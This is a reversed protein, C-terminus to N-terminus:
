LLIYVRSGMTLSTKKKWMEEIKSLIYSNCQKTKISNYISIINCTIICMVINFFPVSKKLSKFKVYYYFHQKSSHSETSFTREIANQLLSPTRQNSGADSGLPQIRFREPSVGCRYWAICPHECRIQFFHTIIKPKVTHSSWFTGNHNNSFLLGCSKTLMM